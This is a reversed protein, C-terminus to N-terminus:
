ASAFGKVTLLKVTDGPTLCPFTHLDHGHRVVLSGQGNICGRRPGCDRAALAPPLKEKGFAVVVARAPPAPSKSGGFTLLAIVTAVAAAGAGAAVWVVTQKRAM